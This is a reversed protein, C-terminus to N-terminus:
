KFQLLVHFAGNCMPAHQRNDTDNNQTKEHLITTFDTGKHQNLKNNEERMSFTSTTILRKHKEVIYVICKGFM